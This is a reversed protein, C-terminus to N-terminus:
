WLFAEDKGPERLKYGRGWVTELYDEGNAADALKKRLKCIFVDIIKQGPERVGGYLHNLLMEKSLPAGKRLSLLELLEYEKKTVHVPIGRMLVTKSDLNIVLDGTQVISHPRGKSRRVIAYIRAVMEARAFPKAMYDDAGAALGKVKDQVAGFGSLIMVPTTVKAARLAALVELGPLDPLDLDLLVMDYGVRSAAQIGDEGFATTDVSFDECRLIREIARAASRDDEILLIRMSAGREAVRVEELSVLGTHVAAVVVAERHTTRRKVDATPPDDTSPGNPRIVSDVTLRLSESM